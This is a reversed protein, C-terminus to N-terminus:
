RKLLAAMEAPTEGAHPRPTNGQDNSRHECLHLARTPTDTRPSSTRDRESRSRLLDRREKPHGTSRIALLLPESLPAGRRKLIHVALRDDAANLRLRLPAPSAADATRAARLVLAATHGTDAATQLRRLHKYAVDRQRIEPWIVVLGCAGSRLCQEASWLLDKATGPRVVLCHELRVGQAAWAPAHLWYPPNILVVSRGQRTQAAIAPLILALEGIGSASHLIETLAGVPWGRGPLVRDLGAFGSPLGPQESQALSDGRWVRGQQLMNSLADASLADAPTATVTNM